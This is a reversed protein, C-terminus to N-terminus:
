PLNKLDQIQCRLNKQEAAIMHQIELLRQQSARPDTEILRQVTELQLAAGTLSQLLGDHLDRAMRIREEAATSQQLQRLMHFYDMQIAMERAVIGGLLLDDTTMGKKDPVFLRGKLNEGEMSLSFVSRIGFRDQFTSNLPAGHWRRLGAPSAYVVAPASERTDLCLFNTGELPGAVLSEFSGPPESTIRFDDNSWSAIHVWPEEKEEWTFVMRPARLAGAAYELMQRLLVEAKKHIIQPWAALGLLEGRLREEYSGLYGLLSAIVALYVSRIIFRNLEFAPDRVIQGTYIGMGIFMVLAAGATWLTGRWSWRLTACFLSFVFYVFFPSTPGETFFMFITFLLLDFGHTILPLKGLHVRIRFIMVTLLLSYAVYGFFLAYAIRAYRGPESPDLWVALLSVTALVLRGTAILLEARRRRSYQFELDKQSISLNTRDFSSRAM